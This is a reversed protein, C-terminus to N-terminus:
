WIWGNKEALSITSPIYNQTKISGWVASNNLLGNLLGWNSIDQDTYSSNVSVEHIENSSQYFTLVKVNKSPINFVDALKKFHIKDIGLRSDLIVSINRLVKPATQKRSQTSSKITNKYVRNLLM